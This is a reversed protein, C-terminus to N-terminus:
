EGVSDQEAAKDLETGQAMGELPVLSVALLQVM